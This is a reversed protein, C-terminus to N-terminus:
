QQDGKNCAAGRGLGIIPQVAPWAARRIRRVKVPRVSSLDYATQLNMWFEPTTGFAGSFLLATEATIGRKGKAIENVRQVPIELHAALAVQSIGMPKLFEEVLIEGPHTSTRHKPIM